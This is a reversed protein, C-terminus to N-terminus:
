TYATDEPLSFSCSKPLCCTSNSSVDEPLLDHSTHNHMKIQVLCNLASEKKQVFFLQFATFALRKPYGEVKRNKTKPRYFVYM